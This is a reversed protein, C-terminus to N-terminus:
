VRAFLSAMCLVLKRAELWACWAEKDTFDGIALLPELSKQCKQYFICHVAMNFFHFCVEWLYWGNDQEKEATKTNKRLWCEATEEYNQCNDVMLQRELREKLQFLRIRIIIVIRSTSGRSSARACAGDTMLKSECLVRPLIPNWVHRQVYWACRAKGLHKFVTCPYSVLSYKVMDCDLINKICFISWKSRM